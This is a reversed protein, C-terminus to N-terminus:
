ASGPCGTPYLLLGDGDGQYVLSNAEGGACVLVLMTFGSLHGKDGVRNAHGQYQLPHVAMLRDYGCPQKVIDDFIGLNGQIFDPLVKAILNGIDDGTTSLRRFLPAIPFAPLHMENARQCVCGHGDLYNRSCILVM